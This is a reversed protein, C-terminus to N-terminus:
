ACTPRAGGRKGHIVGRDRLGVPSGLDLRDVADAEVLEVVPRHLLETDAPTGEVLLEVTRRESGQRGVAVDQRPPLRAADVDVVVDQDLAVGVAHWELEEALLDFDAVGRRGDLDEELPAPHPGVPSAVVPPRGGDGVVHRAGVAGVGLPRRRAEDAPGLLAPGAVPWSTSRIRRLRGCGSCPYRATSPM